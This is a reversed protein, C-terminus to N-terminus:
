QNSTDGHLHEGLYTVLFIDNHGASSCAIVALYSVRETEHSGLSCAQLPWCHDPHMRSLSRGLEASRVLLMGNRGPTSESCSIASADSMVNTLQIFM